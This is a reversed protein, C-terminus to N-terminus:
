WLTATPRPAFRPPATPDGISLAPRFRPRRSRVKPGFVRCPGSYSGRGSQPGTRGLFFLGQQCYTFFFPKARDRLRRSSWSIKILLPSIFFPNLGSTGALYKVSLVPLLLSSYGGCLSFPRLKPVSSYIECGSLCATPRSASVQSSCVGPCPRAPADRSTPGPHPHSWPAPRPERRGRM